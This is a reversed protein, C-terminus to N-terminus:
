YRITGSFQLGFICQVDIDPRFDPKIQVRINKKKQLPCIAHRLAKACIAIWTLKMSLHAVLKFSVKMYSVSIELRLLFLLV